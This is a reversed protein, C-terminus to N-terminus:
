RRSKIPGTIQFKYIIKVIKNEYLFGQKIQTAWKYNREVEFLILILVLCDSKLTHIQNTSSLNM